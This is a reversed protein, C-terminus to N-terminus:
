NSLITEITNLLEKIKYPKKLFGKFGVQKYENIIPDDSYGSSIIAKLSPNIELLKNITEKGGAEGPITYDLIVLDFPEGSNLAKNYAQITEISNKTCQVQYGLQKLADEIFNLILDEDDMVLIKLKKINKTFQEATHSTIEESIKKYAPLYITFETGKGLTSNVTIYGEHKKIIAYAISLGLGTGKPKTTYYPDFIKLLNESSIGIGTDKIIIKVYQGASLPFPSDTKLSINECKIEIIGGSPMAQCSNLLINHFVQGIQGEDAYIHWLNNPIKFNCQVNSGLLVLNATDQLLQSPSLIKKMPEGGKSFTLLQTVLDRAKLSAKEAEKLRSYTKHEPPLNVMALGINGLIATLLNNFDHAIGGALLGLSELKKARIFESDRLEKDIIENFILVTGSIDGTRNKIPACVGTSIIKKSKNKTILTLNNGISVPEGSKILSEFGREINKENKKDIIKFVETLDKGLAEKSQWGTIEEAKRNIFTIKRFIDTTIVSDAISQLTIFLKEKEDLFLNLTEKLSEMIHIHNITKAFKATLSEIMKIQRESFSNKSLSFLRLLGILENEFFIPVFAYSNVKDQLYPLIILKREDYTLQNKIITKKTLIIEDIGLKDFTYEKEILEDTKFYGKATIFKFLKTKNDKLMISGIDYGFRKLVKSLFNDSEKKLDLSTGISSIIEYM